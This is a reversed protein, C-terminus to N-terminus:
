WFSIAERHMHLLLKKKSTKVKACRTHVRRRCQTMDEKSGKYRLFCFWSSDGDNADADADTAQFLQIKM